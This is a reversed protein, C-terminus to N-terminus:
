AGGEEPPTLNRQYDEIAEQEEASPEDSGGCGSVGGLLLVGIMAMSAFLKWLM